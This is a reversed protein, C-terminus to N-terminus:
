SPDAVRGNALWGNVEATRQLRGQRRVLYRQFAFLLLVIVVFGIAPAWRGQTAGVLAPVGFSWLVMARGLRLGRRQRPAEWLRLGAEVVPRVEASEAATIMQGSEALRSIGVNRRLGGQVRAQRRVQRFERDSWFNAQLLGLLTLGVGYYLVPLPSVVALASDAVAMSDPDSLGAMPKINPPPRL